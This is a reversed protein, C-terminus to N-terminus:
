LVREHEAGDLATQQNRGRPHAFMPNEAAALIGGTSSLGACTGAGLDVNVSARSSPAAFLKWFERLEMASTHSLVVAFAHDYRRNSEVRDREFEALRDGRLKATDVVRWREFIQHLVRTLTLISSDSM